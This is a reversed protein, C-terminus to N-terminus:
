GQNLTKISQYYLKYVSTDTCETYRVKGETASLSVDVKEDILKVSNLSYCNTEVWYYCPLSGDCGGVPDPDSWSSNPAQKLFINPTDALGLGGVIHNNAALPPLSLNIYPGNWNSSAIREIILNEADYTHINALPLDEGNDLIYQTLAKELENMNAIYSVLKSEQIASYLAAGSIVSLAGFIALAIRADLGFMAAKKLNNLKIM